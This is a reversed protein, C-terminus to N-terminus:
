LNPCFICVTFLFSLLMCNTLTITSVTLFLKCQMVLAAQSSAEVYAADHLFLCNLRTSLPTLIQQPALTVTGLNPKMFEFYSIYHTM